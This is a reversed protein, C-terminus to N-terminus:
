VTVRSSRRAWWLLISLCILWGWALAVLWLGGRRIVVTPSGAEDGVKFLWLYTVGDFQVIIEPSQGNFQEWLPMWTDSELMRQEHNLDFFYYDAGSEMAVVEEHYQAVSPNGRAMVAVTDDVQAQTGLYQGVYLIGETQDGVELM